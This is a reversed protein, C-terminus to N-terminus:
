VYEPSPTEFVAGKALSHSHDARYAGHVEQFSAVRLPFAFSM